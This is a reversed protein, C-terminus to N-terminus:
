WNFTARLDLMYDYQHSGTVFLSFHGKKEFVIYLLFYFFLLVSQM